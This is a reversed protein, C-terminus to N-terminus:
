RLRTSPNCIYAPSIVESVIEGDKIKINLSDLRNTYLSINLSIHGRGRMQFLVLKTSLLLWSHSQAETRSTEM